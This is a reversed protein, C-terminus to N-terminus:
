QHKEGGTMGPTCVLMTTGNAAYTNEAVEDGYGMWTVMRMLRETVRKANQYPNPQTTPPFTGTLLRDTNTESSLEAATVHRGKKTALAQLIGCELAIRVAINQLPQLAHM